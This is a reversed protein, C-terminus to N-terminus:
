SKILQGELEKKFQDQYVEWKQLFLKLGKKKDEDLKYSINETFYSYLDLKQNPNPLIYMLSPIHEIGYALADNFEAVFANDIEKTSVWAAFVFPLGTHKKWTEGLDYTYKFKGELELAKDGIVVAAIDNKIISEFGPESARLQPNLKWYEKLLIYALAVSTKSEYDLLLTSIEEIPKDSYIVVSRVKDISGICFDSIIRAGPIDPIAAVPILALDAEGNKLKQACAAPHDLTLQLSKHLDKSVIGFLLPKTNLYSVAILKLM